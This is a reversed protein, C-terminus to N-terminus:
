QVIAVMRKRRSGSGVRRSGTEGSSTMRSSRISFKREKRGDFGKVLDQKWTRQIEWWRCCCWCASLTGIGMRTVRTSSSAVSRRRSACSEPRLALPEPRSGATTFGRASLLPLLHLADNLYAVLLLLLLLHVSSTGGFM